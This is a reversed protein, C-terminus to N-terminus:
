KKRLYKYSHQINESHTCWELNEVRNDSRNGNIHNVYPKNPIPKLFLGAVIRQGQIHKKSNLKTTLVFELYNDRTTYPKMKSGYVKGKLMNKILYVNGDRDGVYRDDFNYDKLYKLNKVELNDIEVIEREENSIVIENDLM